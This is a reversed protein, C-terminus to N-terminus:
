GFLADSAGDPVSRWSLPTLRAPSEGSFVTRRVKDIRRVAYM